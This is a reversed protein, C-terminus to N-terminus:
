KDKKIKILINNKKDKFSVKEKKLLKLMFDDKYSGDLYEENFEKGSMCQLTGKCIEDDYVKLDLVVKGLSLIQLHIYKKYHTVFGKDYYKMKPTKFIITASQSIIPTKQSCGALFIFIITLFINKM